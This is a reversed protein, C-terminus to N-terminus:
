AGASVAETGHVAVAGLHWLAVARDADNEADCAAREAAQWRQRATAAKRRAAFAAATLRTARQERTEAGRIPIVTAAAM